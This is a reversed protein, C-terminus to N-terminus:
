MVSFLWIVQQVHTVEDQALVESTDEEEAYQVSKGYQPQTWPYTSHQPRKPFPTQLETSGEGCIGANRPQMHTKYLGM